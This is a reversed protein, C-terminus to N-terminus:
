FLLREAVSAAMKYPQNKRTMMMMMLLHKLIM